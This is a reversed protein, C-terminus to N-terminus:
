RVPTKDFSVCSDWFVLVSPAGSGNGKLPIDGNSELEIRPHTMLNPDESLTECLGVIGHDAAAPFSDVLSSVFPSNGGEEGDSAVEVGAFLIGIDINDLKLLSDLNAASATFGETTDVSKMDADLGLLLMSDELRCGWGAFYVLVDAGDEAHKTLLTIAERLQKVNGEEPFPLIEYGLQKGVLNRVATADEEASQLPAGDYDELGIILAFKSREVNEETKEMAGEQIGAHAYGNVLIACVVFEIIKM